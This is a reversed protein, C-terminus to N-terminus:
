KEKEEPEIERLLEAMANVANQILDHNDDDNADNVGEIYGLMRWAESLQKRKM